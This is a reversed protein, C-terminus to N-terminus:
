KLEGLQEEKLPLWKLDLSQDEFTIIYLPYEPGTYHKRRQFHWEKEMEGTENHWGDLVPVMKGTVVKVEKYIHPRGSSIRTIEGLKNHYEEVVDEPTGVRVIDGLKRM